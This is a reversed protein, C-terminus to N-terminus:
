TSKQLAEGLLREAPWTASGAKHCPLLRSRSDRAQGRAVLRPLKVRM